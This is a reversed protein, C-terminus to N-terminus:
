HHAEYVILKLCLLISMVKMARDERVPWLAIYRCLKKLFLEQIKANRIIKISKHIM